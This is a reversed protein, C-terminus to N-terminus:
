ALGRGERGRKRSELVDTKEDAYRTKVFHTKKLKSGSSEHQASSSECGLVAIGGGADAVGLPDRGLLNGEPNSNGLVGSLVLSEIHEELDLSGLGDAPSANSPAAGHDVVGQRNCPGAPGLSNNGAAPSRSYKKRSLKKACSVLQLCRIAGTGVGLSVGTGCVGNQGAGHAVAGVPGEVREDLADASPVAGADVRGAIGNRESISLGGRRGALGGVVVGAKADVVGACLIAMVEISGLNLVKLSLNLLKSGQGGLNTNPPITTSSPVIGDTSATNFSLHNSHVSFSLSFDQSRYYVIFRVHICLLYSWDLQRRSAHNDPSAVLHGAFKLKYLYSIARRIRVNKEGLFLRRAFNKM